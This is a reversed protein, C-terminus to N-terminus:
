GGRQGQVEGCSACVRRAGRPSVALDGCAPCVDAHSGTNAAPRASPLFLLNDGAAGRAFGKSIYRAAPMPASPEPGSADPEALRDAEGRGLGDANLADPDASSLDQRDLYSVGLERFIYDLISTASRITDNGTVAGAPEFRTYVFADVFEELPVGYQLGISIAIAFNNMLSRFAAGEKHMDIFIEGLEGDDYEGTHLYVKHGGVGAKQIYGKRRDPLKRRVRAREVEVVRGVVREAQLRENPSAAKGPKPPLELRRAEGPARALRVARAGALAAQEQIALADEVGADAALAITLVTPADSFRDMAAAMAARQEVGIGNLGRLVGAAVASLGSAESLLGTGIIVREAEAIAAAEFGCLALVDAGEDPEAGLVDRVFGEGIVVPTFAEALSRAAPLAAEIRGIEHPTFGRTQLTEANVPWPGHLTREGLVHTRALDIDAGLHQLGDLAAASLIPLIAGDATEALSVPGSWPAAGTSVGGLRLSLEPDAARGTLQLNRVGTTRVRQFAEDFLRVAAAALDGSVARAADRRQSLAALVKGREPMFGPAAGMCAGMEASAACASASALASLGAAWRRGEDSGYDLGQAVLAEHVGVLDLILCRVPDGFPDHAAQLMRTLEMAATALRVTDVFGEVDFRGDGLFRGANVVCAPAQDYQQLALADRPEFALVIRGTEWAALAAPASSPPGQLLVPRHRPPERGPAPPQEAGNRARAIADLIMANSAGSRRAARAADALRTNRLPDACADLPGECRMVAAHVEDLRACLVLAAAAATAEDAHEARVQRLAVAGEPTAPVILPPQKPGARAPSLAGAVMAQVLAEGFASAESEASFLGSRRGVAALGGAYTDLAGGLARDQDDIPLAIREAWDLWADVQATTWDRPALMSLSTAGRELEYRGLTSRPTDAPPAFRMSM